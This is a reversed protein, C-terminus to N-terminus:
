KINNEKLFEKYVKEIDNIIDDEAKKLTKEASKMSNEWKPGKITKIYDVWIKEKKNIANILKKDLEQTLIFYNNVERNNELKKIFDQQISYYTSSVSNEFQEYQSSSKLDNEFQSGRYYANSAIGQLCMIAIALWIPMVKKSIKDASKIIFNETKENIKKSFKKIKDIFSENIPEDYSELYERLTM